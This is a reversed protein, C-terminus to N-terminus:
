QTGSPSPAPPISPWNNTTVGGTLRNLIRRVVRGVRDIGRPEDRVVVERNQAPLAHAAPAAITISVVVSVAVALTKVSSSRM